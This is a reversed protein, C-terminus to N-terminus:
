KATKNTTVRDAAFALAIGSLMLVTPVGGMWLRFTLINSPAGALHAVGGSYTLSAATLLSGLTDGIKGTAFLLGLLLGTMGTIASGSAKGAELMSSHLLVTYAGTSSGWGILVIALLPLSNSAPFVLIGSFLLGMSSYLFGRKLGIRNAIWAGASAGGIQAAMLATFLFSLKSDDLKLVYKNAYPLITGLYTCAVMVAFNSVILGLARPRGMAVKCAVGFNLRMDTAIEPPTATRKLLMACLLMTLTGLCSLIGAMVAYRQFGTVAGLIIPALAGAFLGGASQGVMRAVLLENRGAIGTDQLDNAAALHTVWYITYSTSVAILLVTVCLATFIGPVWAVVFCSAASAPLAFAALAFASFRGGRNRSHRDILAGIAPDFLIDWIKPVSIALTSLALSLSITDTLFYLILSGTPFLAACAGFSGSGYGFYAMWRAAAGPPTPRETLGVPEPAAIETM